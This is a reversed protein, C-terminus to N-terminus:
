KRNRPKGGAPMGTPAEAAGTTDTETVTTEPSESESEDQADAEQEIEAVSKLVGATQLWSWTAPSLDSESFM